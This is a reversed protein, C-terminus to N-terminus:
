DMTEPDDPDPGINTSDSAGSFFRASEVFNAASESTLIRYAAPECKKIDQKLSDDAADFADKADAFWMAISNILKARPAALAKMAKEYWPELEDTTNENMCELVKEATEEADSLREKMEPIKKELYAAFKAPDKSVIVRGAAVDNILDVIDMKTNTGLDFALDQVVEPIFFPNDEMKALYYNLTSLTFPRRRVLLGERGISVGFLRHVVGKKDAAQTSCSLAALIVLLPINM